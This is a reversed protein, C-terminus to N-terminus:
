NRIYLQRHRADRRIGCASSVNMINVAAFNRVVRCTARRQSTLSAVILRQASVPCSVELRVTPPWLRKVTASTIRNWVSRLRPTAVAVAPAPTAM